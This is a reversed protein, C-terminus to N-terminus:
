GKTLHTLQVEAGGNIAKKYINYTPERSIRQATYVIEKGDKTFSHLYSPTSDTILKPEGGELPLYYITSGGGPMGDRHSSIGLMKGDFSIVHDNNNRKVAGTNIMAPTGGTVPITYISGGQNFLLNNGDPM